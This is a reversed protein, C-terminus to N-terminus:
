FCQLLLPVPESSDCGFLRPGLCLRACEATLNLVVSKAKETESQFAEKMDNALKLSKQLEEAEQRATQLEFTIRASQQCGM